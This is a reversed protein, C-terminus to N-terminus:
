TYLEDLGNSFYQSGQRRPSSPFCCTFLPLLICVSQASQSLWALTPQPKCGPLLPINRAQPREPSSLSRLLQTIHTSGPGCCDAPVPRLSLLHDRSPSGYPWCVSAPISPWAVGPTYSQNIRYQEPHQPVTTFWACLAGSGRPFPCIISLLFSFCPLPVSTTPCPQCSSSSKPTPITLPVRSHPAPSSGEQSLFGTYSRQPQHTRM